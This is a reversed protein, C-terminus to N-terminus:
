AREGRHPQRGCRDQREARHRVARLASQQPDLQALASTTRRCRSAATSATASRATPSSSRIRPPRARAEGAQRLGQEDRSGDDGEADGRRPARPRRRRAPLHRRAHGALGRGDPDADPQRLLDQHPGSLRPRRPTRRLEGQAGVRLAHRRLEPHVSLRTPRGGIRRATRTGRLTIRGPLHTPLLGRAAVPEGNEDTGDITLGPSNIIIRQDKSEVESPTGLATHDFVILVPGSRRTRTPSRTACPAPRTATATAPTPRRTSRCCPRSCPGTSRTPRDDSRRRRTVPPVTAPRDGGGRHSAALRRPGAGARRRYGRRARRRVARAPRVVDRSRDAPGSLRTGSVTAQQAVAGDNSLTLVVGASALPTPTATAEPGGIGTPTTGSGGGGTNDDGCGGLALVAALLM